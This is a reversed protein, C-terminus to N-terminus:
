KKDDAPAGARAIYKGQIGVSVGKQINDCGLTAERGAGEGLHNTQPTKDHELDSEHSVSQHPVDESTQDALACGDTERDNM